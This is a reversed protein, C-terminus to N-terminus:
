LAGGIELARRVDEASSYGVLRAAADLVAPFQTRVDLGRALAVLGFVDGSIKCGFCNYVVRGGVSNVGFSPTDDAHVPCRMTIKGASRSSIKGLGLLVVLGEPGPLRARLHERVADPAVHAREPRKGRRPPAPLRTLQPAAARPSAPPTTAPGSGLIKRVDADALADRREIAALGDHFLRDASLETKTSATHDKAQTRVTVGM